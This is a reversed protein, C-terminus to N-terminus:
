LPLNIQDLYQYFIGEKLSYDSYTLETFNGMEMVTDILLISVSMLNVRFEDMGPIHRQEAKTSSLLLDRIESFASLPIKHNTLFEPFEIGRLAKHDIKTITQFSGAAGILTQPRYEEIADNLDACCARIYEVLEAQETKAIPDSRHFRDSLRIGGIEYSGHWVVDQKKSIIFEVSGGGIDMVLSPENGLKIAHKVGEFILLAERGGSIVEIESELIAEAERVFDEANSANRLASTGFALVNSVQLDDIMARFTKLCNIGRSYAEGSIHGETLGHEGLKVHEQKAFLELVNGNVDVGKILLHFTNTGMDIIAVHTSM